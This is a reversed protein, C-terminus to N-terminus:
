SYKESFKQINVLKELLSTFLHTFQVSFITMRVTEIRLLTLLLDKQFECAQRHSLEAFKVGGGLLISATEPM